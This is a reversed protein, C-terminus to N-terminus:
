PAPKVATQLWQQRDIEALVRRAAEANGQANWHGDVKFFWEPQDQKPPTEVVPVQHDAALKLIAARHAGQLGAALIMVPWGNQRCQEIAAEIIRPTLVEGPDLAKAEAGEPPSVEVKGSEDKYAAQRILGLLNSDGVGPIFELAAQVRRAFSPPPIPKEVLSGKGDLEYLHEVQNDWFDNTLVQLVVLRPEMAPLTHKMHKLWFGNGSAGMGLNLAYPAQDGMREKLAQGVLAPYDQGNSVGYGMTFSDGLFVIPHKLPAVPEPGRAGLSNTSFTMRFDPTTRVTHFNPKLRKWLVPDQQTFSAGVNRLPVLHPVAFEAILLMVAVTVLATLANAFLRKM